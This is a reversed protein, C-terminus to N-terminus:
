PQGLYETFLSDIQHNTAHHVFVSDKILEEKFIEIEYKLLNKDQKLKNIELLYEVEKSTYGQVNITPRKFANLILSLAIVSLLVILIYDPKKM